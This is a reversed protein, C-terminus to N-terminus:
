SLTKNAIERLILSPMSILGHGLHNKKFFFFFGQDDNIFIDEGVSAWPTFPYGSALM